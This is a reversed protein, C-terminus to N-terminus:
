QNETSAFGFEAKVECLCVKQLIKNEAGIFM